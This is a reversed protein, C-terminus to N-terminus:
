QEQNEQQRLYNTSDTIAKPVGLITDTTSSAPVTVTDETGKGVKAAPSRRTKHPEREALLVGAAGIGNIVAVRDPTGDNGFINCTVTVTEGHAYTNKDTTLTMSPM